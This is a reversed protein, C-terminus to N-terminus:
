RQKSTVTRIVLMLGQTCYKPACESSITAMNPSLCYYYYYFVIM